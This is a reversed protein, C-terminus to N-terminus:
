KMPPPFLGNYAWAVGMVLVLVASVATLVKGWRDIADLKNALKAEQGVEVMQAENEPAVHIGASEEKAVMVRWVFLVVVATTAIAWLIFWPTLNIPM